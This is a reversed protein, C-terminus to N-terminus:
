KIAKPLLASMCVGLVASPCSKRSPWLFCATASSGPAMSVVSVIHAVQAVALPQHQSEKIAKRTINHARTPLARLSAHLALMCLLLPHFRGATRLSTRTPEAPKSCCTSEPQACRNYQHLWGATQRGAAGKGAM